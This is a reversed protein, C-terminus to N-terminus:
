GISFSQNDEMAANVAIVAIVTALALVSFPSMSNLIIPGPSFLSLVSCLWDLRVREWRIGAKRIGHMGSFRDKGIKECCVKM